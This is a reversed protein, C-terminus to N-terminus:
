GYFHTFDRLYPGSRHTFDHFKTFFHTFVRLEEACIQMRGDRAGSGAAKSELVGVSGKGYQNGAGNTETDGNRRPERTEMNYGPEAQRLFFMIRYSATIHPLLRNGAGNIRYSGTAIRYFDAVIRCFVSGVRCSGTIARWGPMGANTGLKAQDTNTGHKM